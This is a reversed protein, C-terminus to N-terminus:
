GVLKRHADELRSSITGDIVDDGIEVRMGGLLAPELVVNLHVKRGYQATLAQTLREEEAPSLPRAVRVKAVGEGNVAAAVLQYADLAASVTRYSGSTAQQALRVTAPLAKADLLDRLLASKDASSRAPDSLAGRLDENHEIVQGVEFLETALRDGAGASRAVGIVGLEELADALDRTLTWRRGVAEAFIDLAASSTKGEFISRVLSQKASADTSVDTAVRRLGPENRLVAAISFLDDAVAAVQSEDVAGLQDSLAAFADASAGRFAM